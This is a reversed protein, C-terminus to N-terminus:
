HATTGDALVLFDPPCVCSLTRGNDWNVGIHVQVDSGYPLHTIRTVTGLTGAPIPDPDAGMHVLKVRDGIKGIFLMDNSATAM